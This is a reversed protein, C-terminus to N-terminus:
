CWHKARAKPTGATSMIVSPSCVCVRVCVCVCVCHDENSAGLEIDDLFGLTVLGHEVEVDGPGNAYTGQQRAVVCM